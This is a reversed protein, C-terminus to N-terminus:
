DFLFSKWNASKTDHVTYWGPSERLQEASWDLVWGAHSPVLHEQLKNFAVFERTGVKDLVFRPQEFFLDYGNGNPAYHFKEIGVISTHYDQNVALLSAPYRGERGRYSEIERIMQESAAIARRRSFETAPVALLLQSVFVTAPIIVLYAPASNFDGSARMKLERLGSKWRSALLIWAVIVLLGVSLGASKLGVLAVVLTVLSGTILSATAFHYGRNAHPLNRSARRRRRTEHLLWLLGIPVLLLGVAGFAQVMWSLPVSLRDYDGPLYPYVMGLVLLAAIVLIRISHATMDNANPAPTLRDDGLSLVSRCGGVTVTSRV